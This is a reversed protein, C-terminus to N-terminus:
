FSQLGAMSGRGRRCRCFRGMWWNAVIAGEFELFERLTMRRDTLVTM